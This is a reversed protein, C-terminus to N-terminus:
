LKYDIPVCLPLLETMNMKAKKRGLDVILALFKSGLLLNKGKLTSRIKSPSRQECATIYTIKRQSIPM